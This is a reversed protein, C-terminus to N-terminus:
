ITTKLNEIYTSLRKLGEQIFELKTAYSLRIYDDNGFAIGPVVAVNYDTLLAESVTLSLSDIDGLYDRLQSIDIFLYFAGDPRVYRISDMKDLTEILTNRRSQYTDVMEKIDQECDTLATVGAWQTITSPHSVLHGQITSIASAIEPTSATYGLRWGTMSVSKSFGNVLITIEKAEESLSPISTFPLDTYCIREYIEDALIYIKHQICYTVITELEDKSYVAGTPNSPNNLFIMKTKDTHHAKLLDLTLKFQHDISTNAINPIGGCLKIIEPYSTWYPAPLIVEDGPNLLAMLTNTIAHKAGSSVVIQNPTYCVDNEVELKNCIATRLEIIGSVADYKTENQDIAQKGAEKAKEPTYFDPEGISLDIITKGEAKLAKVKTNIGITFSPTIQSIKKSLM